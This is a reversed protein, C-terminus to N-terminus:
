LKEYGSGKKFKVFDSSMCDSAFIWNKVGTLNHASTDDPTILPMTKISLKSECILRMNLASFAVIGNLNLKNTARVCQIFDTCIIYNESENKKILAGAMHSVGGALLKGSTVDYINVIEGTELDHVLASFQPDYQKSNTIEEVQEATLRKDYSPLNSIIRSQNRKVQDSPMLDVDAGLIKCADRFEIGQYNMAFDIVNGNAGCGFCYYMQKAENVNFSPTKESHFPCCAVHSGGAKKLPVYQHIYDVINHSAKLADTDIKNM